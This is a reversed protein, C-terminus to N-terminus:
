DQSKVTQVIPITVNVKYLANLDKCPSTSYLPLIHNINNEYLCSNGTFAQSETPFVNIQCGKLACLFTCYGSSLFSSLGVEETQQLKEETKEMYNEMAPFFLHWLGSSDCIKQYGQQQETFALTM